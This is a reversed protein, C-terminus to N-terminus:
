GVILYVYILLSYLIIEKRILHYQHFAFAITFYFVTLGGGVLVSSFSRYNKRLRHAVGILIIGCILGICVRGIENIWKQDIAYKVFFAIGLVLIAIGIKNILNEGIFKEIDPNNRLWKEFWNEASQYVPEPQPAILQKQETIIKGPVIQKTSVVEKPSEKKLVEEIVDVAPPKIAETVSPQQIVTQSAAPPTTKEEKIQPSSIRKNLEAVQENLEQISKKLAEIGSFRTNLRSLIIFLIIIILLLLAFHM